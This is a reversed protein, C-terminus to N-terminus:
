AQLVDTRYLAIRLGGHAVSEGMPLFPLGTAKALGGDSTIIGVRWGAFRERLVRGMAAYLAFLQRRDGIRAGYPPNVIVLGPAVGEPPMADSIAARRFATIAAVGAREANATAARIAGDDRDSGFGVVPGSVGVERRMAGFAAADFTV